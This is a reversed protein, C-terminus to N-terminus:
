LKSQTILTSYGDMTFSLPLYINVISPDYFQSEEPITPDYIKDVSLLPQLGKKIESPSLSKSIQAAFTQNNAANKALDVWTVSKVNGSGNKFNFKCNNLNLKAKLVMNFVQLNQMVIYDVNVKDGAKVTTSFKDFTVTEAVSSSTSSSVHFDFSLKTEVSASAFFVDVKEKNTISAEIGTTFSASITSTSTITKSDYNVTIPNPGQSNDIEHQSVIKPSGVTTHIKGNMLLTGIPQSKVTEMQLDTGQYQYDASLGGVSKIINIFAKNKSMYKEWDAKAQYAKYNGTDNNNFEEKLNTQPIMALAPVASSSAITLIGLITLLKKM